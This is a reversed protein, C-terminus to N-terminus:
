KVNLNTDINRKKKNNGGHCENNEIEKKRQNYNKLAKEGFEEIYM